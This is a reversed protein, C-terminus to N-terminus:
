DVDDIEGEHDGQQLAEFNLDAAGLAQKFGNMYLEAKLDKEKLVGEANSLRLHAGSCLRIVGDQLYLAAPCSKGDEYVTLELYKEIFGHDVIEPDGYRHEKVESDIKLGIHKIEQASTVIRADYIRYLPTAHAVSALMLTALVLQFRIRTSM